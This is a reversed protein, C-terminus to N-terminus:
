GAFGPAFAQVYAFVLWLAFPITRWAAPESVGFTPRHRGWRWFLQFTGTLLFVSWLVVIATQEQRPPTLWALAMWLKADGGGIWQRQWGMFLLACTLWLLPHGPMHLIGGLTLLPLTVANPVRRSRSDYWSVAISAVLAVISAVFGVETVITNWAM